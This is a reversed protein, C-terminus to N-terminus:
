SVRFGQRPYARLAISCTKDNTGVELPARLHAGRSDYSMEQYVTEWELYDDIVLSGQERVIGSQKMGGYPAQV